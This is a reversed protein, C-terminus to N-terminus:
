LLATVLGARKLEARSLQRKTVAWAVRGYLARLEPDRSRDLHAASLERHLVVDYVTGITGPFPECRVEFWGRDLRLYCINQAVWRVHAHTERRAPRRHLIERLLGTRPCVYLEDQRRGIPEPPGWRRWAYLRGEREEVHLQVLDPVHDRVHQQVASRASVRESLESYVKDWPWGVQSRLWRRLPALNENLGKTGKRGIPERSPSSEDLPRQRGKRQWGGGHRPREVIVKFMDERM